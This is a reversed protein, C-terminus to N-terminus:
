ARKQFNNRAVTRAHRIVRGDRIIPPRASARSAPELGASGGCRYHCPIALFAVAARSGPSRHDMGALGSVTRAHSASGCGRSAPVSAARDFSRVMFRHSVRAEDAERRQARLGLADGLAYRAM